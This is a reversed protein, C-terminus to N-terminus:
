ERREKPNSISRLASEEKLMIVPNVLSRHFNQLQKILVDKYERPEADFVQAETFVRNMLLAHGM